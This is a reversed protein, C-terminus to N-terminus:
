SWFPYFCGMYPTCTVGNRLLKLGTGLIKVGNKSNYYSGLIVTHDRAFTSTLGREVKVNIRAREYM